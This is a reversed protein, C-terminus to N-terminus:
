VKRGIVRRSGVWRAAIICICSLKPEYGTARTCPYGLIVTLWEYCTVSILSGVSTGCVATCLIIKCYISTCEVRGEVWGSALLTSRRCGDAYVEVPPVRRALAACLRSIMM